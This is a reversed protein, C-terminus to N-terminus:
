LESLLIHLKTTAKYLMHILEVLVDTTPTGSIGGFQKGDIEGEVTEVVWKMVISEFVNAAIQTLSIPRIDKEISVPPNTKRVPIVNAVKWEM